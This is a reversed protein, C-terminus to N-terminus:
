VNKIVEVYLKREKTFFRLIDGKQLDLTHAVKQPIRVFLQGRNVSLKSKGEEEYVHIHEIAKKREEQPIEKFKKTKAM